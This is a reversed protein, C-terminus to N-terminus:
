SNPKTQVVTANEGGEGKNALVVRILSETTSESINRVFVFKEGPQIVSIFCAMGINLKQYKAMIKSIEKIAQELPQETKKM